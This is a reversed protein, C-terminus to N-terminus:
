DASAATWDEGGSFRGPELSPGGARAAGGGAPAGPKKRGRGGRSGRRRRKKPVGNEDLVPAGPAGTSETDNSEPGVPETSPEPDPAERTVGPLVPTHGPLLTPSETIAGHESREPESM